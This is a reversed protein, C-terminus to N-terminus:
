GDYRGRGFHYNMRSLRVLLRASDAIPHWDVEPTVVM